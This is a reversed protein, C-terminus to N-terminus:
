PIKHGAAIVVSRFGETYAIRFEQTNYRAFFCDYVLSDYDYGDIGLRHVRARASDEGKRYAERLAQNVRADHNARNSNEAATVVNNFGEAYAIRFEETKYRAYYCNSVLMKRNYGDIGFYKMGVSADAEGKKYAERLAQAVRRELNNRNGQTAATVVSNFGEAYAARFEKTNYNAYYCQYTLMEYDYGDVGLKNIGKRASRVGDDYAQRLARANQTEQTAPVAAAFLSSLLGM